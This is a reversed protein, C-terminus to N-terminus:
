KIDVGKIRKNISIAAITKKVEVQFVVRSITLVIITKRINKTKKPDLKM